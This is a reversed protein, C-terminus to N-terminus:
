PLRLTIEGRWRTLAESAAAPAAAAAKASALQELRASQPLAQAKERALALWSALGSAPAAVLNVRVLDGQLSVRADQGLLSSASSELQAMADQRSMRAPTQLQRAQAQLQLMQRTQAELRAQQAPAERWVQWAPTLLLRWLATGLLVAAGLVLLRRERPARQDWAARAAQRIPTWIPKM